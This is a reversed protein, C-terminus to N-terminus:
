VTLDLTLHNETALKQLRPIVPSERGRGESHSRDGYPTEGEGQRYMAGLRLPPVEPHEPHQSGDDVDDMDMDDEYQYQDPGTNTYMNTRQSLAQLHRQRNYVELQSFEDSTEDLGTGGEREGQYGTAHPHYGDQYGEEVRDRYVGEQDMDMDSDSHIQHQHSVRHQTGALRPLPLGTN